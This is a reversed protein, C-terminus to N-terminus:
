YRRNKSLTILSDMTFKLTLCSHKYIDEEVKRDSIPKEKWTNSVKYSSNSKRSFTSARAMLSHGIEAKLTDGSTGLDPKCVDSEQLIIVVINM